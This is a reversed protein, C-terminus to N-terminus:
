KTKTAVYTLFYKESFNTTGFSMLINIATHSVDSYEAHIQLWFPLLKKLKFKFKLTYDTSITILQWAKQNIM